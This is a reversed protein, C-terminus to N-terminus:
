GRTGKQPTAYLSVYPDDPRNAHAHRLCGPRVAGAAARPCLDDHGAYVPELEASPRPKGAERGAQGHEDDSRGYLRGSPLEPRQQRKSLNRGDAGEHQRDGMDFADLNRKQEASLRLGIRTRSRGDHGDNRRRSPHEGSTWGSRYSSHGCALSASPMAPDGTPKQASM